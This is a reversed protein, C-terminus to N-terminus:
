NAKAATRAKRAALWAIYEAQIAPDEFAARVAALVPRAMIEIREKPIKQAQIEIPPHTDGAHHTDQKEM